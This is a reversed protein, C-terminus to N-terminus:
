VKLQFVISTFNGYRLLPMVGSERHILAGTGEMATPLRSNMNRNRALIRVVREIM